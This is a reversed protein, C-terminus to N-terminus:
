PPAAEASLAILNPMAGGLGLGTLVRSAFLLPADTAMATLLSMAGFGAMSYVLVWKRGIRDAVWGGAIAGVLLGGTSSSFLWGAARPTLQFAPVLTPAVLGAAVIDLGEFLAAAFCLSITIAPAFAREFDKM